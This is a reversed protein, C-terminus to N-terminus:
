RIARWAPAPTVKWPSFLPVPAAAAPCSAGAGTDAPPVASNSVDDLDLLAEVQAALLACESLASVQRTM